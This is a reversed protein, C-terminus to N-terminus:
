QRTQAASTLYDMYIPLCRYRFYLLCFLGLTKGGFIEVNLHSGNLIDPLFGEDDM